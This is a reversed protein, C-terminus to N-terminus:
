MRSGAKLGANGPTRGHAVPGSAASTSKSLCISPCANSSAGSPHQQARLPSRRCARTTLALPAPCVQRSAASHQWFLRALATICAFATLLCRPDREEELAAAAGELVRVDSEALAPGFGKCHVLMM